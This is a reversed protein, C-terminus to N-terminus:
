LVIRRDRRDLIRKLVFAWLLGAPASVVLTPLFALLATAMVVVAFGTLRIPDLKPMGVVSVVMVTAAETAGLLGGLLAARVGSALTSRGVVGPALYRGVIAGVPIAAALCAITFLVRFDNTLDPAVAVYDLGLLAGITLASVAAGVSAGTARGSM